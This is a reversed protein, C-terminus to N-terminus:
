QGLESGRRRWVYIGLGGTLAGLGGIAIALDPIGLGRVMVLPNLGILQEGDMCHGTVLAVGPTEGMYKADPDAVGAHVRYRAGLAFDRGCFAGNGAGTRAYVRGDGPDGREVSDISFTYIMSGHVPGNRPVANTVTGTFIVDGTAIAGVHM